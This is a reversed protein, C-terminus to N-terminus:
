GIFDLSEDPSIPILLSGAGTARRLRSQRKGPIRFLGLATARPKENVCERSGDLLSPFRSHASLKTCIAPSSGARAHSVVGELYRTQRNWWMQKHRQHLFAM